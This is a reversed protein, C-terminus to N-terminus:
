PVHELWACQVFQNRIPLLSASREVGRHHAVGEIPQRVLPASHVDGAGQQVQRRGEALVAVVDNGQAHEAPPERLLSLLETHLNVRAEGGTLRHDPLATGHDADLEPVHPYGLIAPLLVDKLGAHLQQPLLRDKCLATSSGETLRDHRLIAEPLARRWLVIAETDLFHPLDLRLVVHGASDGVADPPGQVMPGITAGEDVVHLGVQQVYAQDDAKIVGVRVDARVLLELAELLVRADPRQELAARADRVPGPTEVLAAQLCDWLQRERTAHDSTAASPEQIHWLDLAAVCGHLSAHESPLHGRLREQAFPCFLWPLEGLILANHLAGPHPLLQAGHPIELRGKMSTQPGAHGVPAHRHHGRPALLRPRETPGLFVALVRGWCGTAGLDLVWLGIAHIGELQKLIESPAAHVMLMVLRSVQLHLLFVCCHRQLGGQRLKGARLPPEARGLHILVDGVLTPSVALHLQLDVRLVADM